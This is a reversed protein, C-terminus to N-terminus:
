YNKTTSFRAYIVNIRGAYCIAHGTQYKEGRYPSYPTVFRCELLRITREICDIELLFFRNELPRVHQFSAVYCCHVALAAAPCHRVWLPPATPSRCVFMHRLMKSNNLGRSFKKQTYNTVVNGNREIHKEEDRSGVELKEGVIECWDRRRQCAEEQM